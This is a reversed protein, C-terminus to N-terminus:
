VSINSALVSNECYLFDRQAAVHCTLKFISKVLPWLDFVKNEILDKKQMKGTTLNM